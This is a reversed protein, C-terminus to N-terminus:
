SGEAVGAVVLGAHVQLDDVGATLEVVFCSNTSDSYKVSRQSTRRVGGGVVGVQENETELRRNEHEQQSQDRGTLSVVSVLKKMDKEKIKKGKRNYLWCEELNRREGM